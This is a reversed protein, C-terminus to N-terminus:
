RSYGFPGETLFGLINATVGNSSVGNDRESQRDRRGDRQRGRPVAPHEESQKFLTNDTIKFSMNYTYIYIYICM